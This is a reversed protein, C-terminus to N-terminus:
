EKVMKEIEKCDLLDKLEDKKIIEIKMIWNSYPDQNLKSPEDFLDDNVEIVEGSLPSSMHGSWKVSELSVYTEGKKLTKGKQPLNIFVFEEVKETAYKTIGVTALNKDVKVWSNDKSYKLNEIFDKSM